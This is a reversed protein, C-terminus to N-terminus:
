LTDSKCSFRLYAKYSICELYFHFKLGINFAFYYLYWDYKGVTQPVILILVPIM